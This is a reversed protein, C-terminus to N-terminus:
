QAVRRKQVRRKMVSQCSCNCRTVVLPHIPRPVEGIKEDVEVRGSRESLTDRKM